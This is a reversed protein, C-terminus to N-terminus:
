KKKPKKVPKVKKTSSNEESPKLKDLEQKLENNQFQLVRAVEDYGHLRRVLENVLDRLDEKKLEVRDPSIVELHAPMYKFCLVLLFLVEDLEIEVEAFNSYLNKGEIEKPENLKKEIVTIGKEENIRKILDELVENLHEKPRGIIEFITLIRIKEETLSM